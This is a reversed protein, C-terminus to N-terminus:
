TKNYNDQKLPATDFRGLDYNKGVVKIMARYKGRSKEFSVGKVGTTNNSNVGRNHLNQSGTASRLNSRLNNLPNHDIHDILTTDIGMWEGIMTHIFITTRKGNPLSRVARFGKRYWAARWKWQMLYEYDCDNVLAVQGRTLKIEKM